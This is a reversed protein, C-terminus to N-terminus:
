ALRPAFPACGPCRRGIQCVSQQVMAARLACWRWRRGNAPRPLKESLIQGRRVLDDAFLAPPWRLSVSQGGTPCPNRPPYRACRQEMASAGGSRCAGAAPRRRVELVWRGASRVGAAVGAAQWFRGHVHQAGHRTAHAPARARARAGCGWAQKKGGQGLTVEFSLREHLQPRQGDRPFASIHAFLAEGGETPQIFGFGRDDNWQALTGEFRM